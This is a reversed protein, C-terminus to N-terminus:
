GSVLKMSLAAPGKKIELKSWFINVIFGMVQLIFNQFIYWPYKIKSIVESETNEICIRKNWVNDM